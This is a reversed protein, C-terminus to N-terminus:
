GRLGGHRGHLSHDSRYHHLIPEFWTEFQSSIGLPNDFRNRDKSFSKFITQPIGGSIVIHLHLLFPILLQSLRDRMQILGKWDSLIGLRFVKSFSDTVKELIDTSNDSSTSDISIRSASGPSTSCFQVEVGIRIDWVRQYFPTIKHVSFDTTKRFIGSVWWKQM